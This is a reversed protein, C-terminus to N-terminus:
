DGQVEFGLQALHDWYEPYSKQVVQRDELLLDPYVLCLPGFAMAMRHDNYTQIMEGSYASAGKLKWSGSSEEFSAGFQKAENQLAEIRDTEKIRLHEIGSIELEKKLGIGTAVVTQVLDPCNKMNLSIEKAVQGNHTLQIGDNNFETDVGLEKMIDVIAKDGQISEKKLGEIFVSSGPKFAVIEYYYSASSWDPEVDIAKPQYVQEPVKIINDVWYCMIGFQAMLKLTMRIYPMSVVTEKLDIVLGNIIRPAILLLASVFQSSQHADIVVKKCSLKSGKIRLPPHGIKDLYHIDAGLENLANVLEGVPRELMRDSGTLIWEGKGIALLATMFRYVAAGHGADLESNESNIISHLIATDRSTSKRSINLEGETLANIIELRNSISKSGSLRIHGKIDSGNHSIKSAM